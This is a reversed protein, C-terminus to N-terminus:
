RNYYNYAVPAAGQRYNAPPAYYGQPQANNEYQPAGQYQQPYNAPPAYYQQPANYSVPPAYYQPPANYSVPPSYYQQPAYYPAAPQVYATSAVVNGFAVFPAAIIAATTGVVAAAM